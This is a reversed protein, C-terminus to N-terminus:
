KKLILFEFPALQLKTELPLSAQNMQNTWNTNAIEAPLQYDVTKNRVNVLVLVEETGSIREFAAVDNSNKYSVLAGKKVAEGTNRIAIVKKYVEKIEPNLNWNIPTKTFFSLKYPYGIEQGNYILPVGGVYASLVFAAMAGEQSQFIKDPTDDWANDDHNTIFHLMHSGAPIPQYDNTHATYIQSVSKNENFIGKLSGYFNWGFNLEFGAQYNQVRTGEAFFILERDPIKNLEDLAKKWFDVPVGDTYDCRFGDINATYVWHKMAEIMAEQMDANGFNLDAVDNWGNPSVINGNDDKTYWGENLIWEHDWATHNAVWDLIVAMDLEHAKDVLARLDSLTGFEPNVSLYDSIAYPSGVGKLKGIPYIPMLWIVNVGLASISDLRRSVGNFTGENSFSRLNVEYMVIDSTEPVKDFPTGYYEITDKDVPPNIVIPDDKACSTTFMLWLALIITHMSILKKM